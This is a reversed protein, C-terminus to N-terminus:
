PWIRHRELFLKISDFVAIRMPKVFVSLRPQFGDMTVSMGPWKVM